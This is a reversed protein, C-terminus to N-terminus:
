LKNIVLGSLLKPYYYTSKQPMLEDFGSIQMVEENKTPNLLLALQFDGSDVKQVCEEASHSYIIHKGDQLHHHGIDLLQEIIFNHLIAVDLHQWVKSKTHDTYREAAKEDKLVLLYYDKNKTYLGFAHKDKGTEEMKDLLIELSKKENSSIKTIDFYEVIQTLLKDFDLNEINHLLRHTPLIVLGTDEINVLMFITFNYSEDGTHYPNNKIRENRYNLATEYRHHGDAIVITKDKMMDVIQDIIKKNSVQWLSNKIGLDDTIDIIPKNKYVHALNKEIKFNKDTYLGFIQCLNAECTRMLEFRDRKPGSLTQEHPCIIKDSFDELRVKAIFGHRIKAPEDKKIKFEQSYFYISPKDDPILIKNNLWNNLYYSARTYKNYAETDGKSEQGLILRIINNGHKKYYSKQAEPSIVDYPPTTVLNLDKILNTNYRIGNFPFIQAM